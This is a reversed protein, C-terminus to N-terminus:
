IVQSFQTVSHVQELHWQRCEPTSGAGHSCLAPLPWVSRARGGPRPDGRNEVGGMWKVPSEPSWCCTGGSGEGRQGM